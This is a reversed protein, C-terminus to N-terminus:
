SEILTGNVWAFAINAEHIVSPGNGLLFLYFSFIWIMYANFIDDCIQNWM